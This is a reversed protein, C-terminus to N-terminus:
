QLVLIKGWAPDGGAIIVRYFFVGNRVIRGSEDRGDWIDDSEGNRTADKVITRVRNMGFDFLEITVTAAESGTTYHIRIPQQLPSFPNPYAYVTSRAVSPSYARIVEWASGFPHLANDITRALGDGSAAFVTDAITAVSFFTTTTLRNGSTPDAVTGSRLWTSGGDSTRYLGDDSAVYTISDRFTFAYAKVGQLFSHWSAGADDTYSVAYEQNPGTAPWNTTWVRTGSALRQVGIAIVWDSALHSVENNTTFHRWSSGGDTSFNIGGATGAWVTDRGITAVSFGKFNDDPRPDVNYNPLSDTPAISARTANPLVIRQWTQGLDTSKRIGSAWSAVWVATESLAVDYTVSQEPVVIPLFHVRNIGYIVVSDDKADQPQPRGTWTQGGDTSFAYGSGTPVPSNDVEKEYGTSVWITDGKVDLAYISPRAFAPVSGFDQWTRGGDSSRALSRSTGAWLIGRVASLHSVANTPITSASAGTLLLSKAASNQGMAAHSICAALLVVVSLSLPRSM